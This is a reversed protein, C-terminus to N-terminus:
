EWIHFQANYRLLTGSGGTAGAAGALGSGGGAAGAGGGTGPAVSLTGPTLLNYVLFIV